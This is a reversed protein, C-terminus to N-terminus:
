AFPLWVDFRAGKLDKDSVIDRHGQMENVAHDVIALGLGTGYRKNKPDSKTTFLPEWVMSRASKPIGPGSDSVSIRYGSRKNQEKEEVEIRIRRKRNNLRCFHYANTILNIVVSEIDMPFAKGEVKGVEAVLEIDCSEVAPRLENVLRRVLKGIDIKRRRRKEKKVRRLAFEGWSKVQRSYKVSKELEELIDDNSDSDSSKALVKALNVSGLIGDIAITTEHGFTASAIGLTALGRYVTAQSALDDLSKAAVQIKEATEEIHERVRDIEQAAPKPLDQTIISQLEGVLDTLDGRLAEVTARPSVDHSANRRRFIQHYFAELHIICGIIFRKLEIFDDSEILGERSTADAIGPNEDRGIFVAGVLQNPSVRFDEYGAGVPNRTKRDGLGLWDGEPRKPDGYPAVRIDDRYVKIGANADLFRRLEALNLDTGRLTERKKPFFLLTVSASGFTPGFALVQQNPTSPHTFQLWPISRKHVKGQAGSKKRTSLACAVKPGDSVVFTARVEAVDYFPSEVVGSIAESLDTQLQIQFDEVTRFPPTLTALQRHLEEVDEVKWRQRLNRIILETGTFRQSNARPKTYKYEGEEEDLTAPKPILFKVESLSEIPVKNLDVGGSEFASWDVSLGAARSKKAQTRLELKSGLRDASIRGVGKEGTKRRGNKSIRNRRKESYGIRLWNSQVQTATMGVGSDVIRIYHDSPDPSSCVVEIKVVLASADYSNKVLEVVATTHDKISERGWTLLARSDITFHKKQRRKRTKAM